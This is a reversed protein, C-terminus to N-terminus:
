FLGIQEGADPSSSEVRAALEGRALQLRLATGPPAEAADRVVAGDRRVIAFGRELPATPNLGNLGASLVVFRHRKRELVRQAAATLRREHEQVKGRLVTLRHQPDTLRAALERLRDRRRKLLEIPSRRQLADALADLRQRRAALLM